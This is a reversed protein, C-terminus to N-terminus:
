GDVHISEIGQCSSAITSPHSLRIYLAGSCCSHRVSTGKGYNATVAGMLGSSSTSSGNNNTNSPALTALKPSKKNTKSSTKETTKGVNDVLLAADGSSLESELKKRIYDELGYDSPNQVLRSLLEDSSLSRELGNRGGVEKGRPALSPRDEPIQSSVSRSLRPRNSLQSNVTNSEDPQERLEAKAASLSRHVRRQSKVRKHQLFSSSSITRGIKRVSAARQLHHRRPHTRSRTSSTTDTSCISSCSEGLNSSNEM